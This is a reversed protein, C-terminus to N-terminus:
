LNLNLSTINVLKSISEGISKAGEAEIKNCELNLKLSSIRVLQSISEGVSKAGEDEISNNSIVRSSHSILSHFPNTLSM